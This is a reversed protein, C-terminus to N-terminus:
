AEVFELRGVNPIDTHLATHNQVKYTLHEILDSANKFLCSGCNRRIHNVPFAFDELTDIECRYGNLTIATLEISRGNPSSFTMM